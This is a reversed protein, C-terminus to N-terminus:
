GLVSELPRHFSGRFVDAHVQVDPMVNRSSSVGQVEETTMVIADERQVKLVSLLVMTRVYRPTLSVDRNGRNQPHQTVFSPLYRCVDFVLVALRAHIRYTFHLLAEVVAPFCEFCLQWRQAVDNTM